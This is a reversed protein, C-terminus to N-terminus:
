KKLKNESKRRKEETKQIKREYLSTKEAPEIYPRNYLTEIYAKYPDEYSKKNDSNKKEYVIRSIEPIEQCFEEKFHIKVRQDQQKSFKQMCEIDSKSIVCPSHKNYGVNITNSLVVLIPYNVGM